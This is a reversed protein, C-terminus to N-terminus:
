AANGNASSSEIDRKLRDMMKAHIKPGVSRSVILLSSLGLPFVEPVPATDPPFGRM